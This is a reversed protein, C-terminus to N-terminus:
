QPSKEVCIKFNATHLDKEAHTLCIEFVGKGAEDTLNGDGDVTVTKADVDVAANAEYTSGDSKKGHIKATTGAEVSFTGLRSELKFVLSFDSDNENLNVELPDGGPTVDLNYEYTIM